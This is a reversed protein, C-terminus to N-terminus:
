INKMTLMRIHNKLDNIQKQQASIVTLLDGVNIEEESSRSSEIEQYDNVAEIQTLEFSDKYYDLDLPMIPFKESQIMKLAIREIDRSAVSGEAFKILPIGEDLSQNVTDDFYIMGMCEVHVGLGSLILDKLKLAMELDEPSKAMNVIIKPQLVSLYKDIKEGVRRDIRRIKKLIESFDMGSGPKKEKMVSKLYRSVERHSSFARQIFRFVVNRMFGYTNLISSTQSSTVIFGSNSILFFDTVANNSGPGLDLIIYDETLKLINDLIRKKQSFQLDAIGPVLVDGPIYKLNDYPTEHLIDKLAGRRSSLFNGIGMRTNRMGLVTHLNSGGLDLDIAVTDKGHKALALALNASVLTKGVGGKGGAVPIIKRSANENIVM